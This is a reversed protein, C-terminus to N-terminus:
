ESVEVTPADPWLATATHDITTSVNGLKTYLDARRDFQTEAEPLDNNLDIVHAATLTGKDTIIREFIKRVSFDARYSLGRIDEIIAARQKALTILSRASDSTTPNDLYTTQLRALMANAADSASGVADVETDLEKLLDIGRKADALRKAPTANKQLADALALNLQQRTPNNPATPLYVAQEQAKALSAFSAYEAGFHQTSVRAFVLYLAVLGVVVLMSLIWRVRKSMQSFKALIKKM